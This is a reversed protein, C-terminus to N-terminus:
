SRRLLRVFVDGGGGGIQGANFAVVNLGRVTGARPLQQTTTLEATAASFRTANVVIGVRVDVPGLTPGVREIRVVDIALGADVRVVWRTKQREQESENSSKRDTAATTTTDLTVVGVVEVVEVVVVVFLRVDSESDDDDVSVVAASLEGIVDNAFEAFEDSADLAGVGVCAVTPLRPMLAVSMTRVNKKTHTHNAGTLFVVCRGVACLTPPVGTTITVDLPASADNAAAAGSEVM